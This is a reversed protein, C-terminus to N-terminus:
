FHFIFRIFFVFTMIAGVVIAIISLIRAVIRYVRFKTGVDELSTVKNMYSSIIGLIMPAPYYTLFAISSSLADNPISIYGPVIIFLLLISHAVIALIFATQINSEKKNM